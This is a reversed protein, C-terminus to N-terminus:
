GDFVWVASVSTFLGNKREQLIKAAKSEGIRKLKVLGSLGAYNLVQLVNKESMESGEQEMVAKNAQVRNKVDDIKEKLRDNDSLYM